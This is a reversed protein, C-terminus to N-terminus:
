YQDACRRDSLLIFGSGRSERIGPQTGVPAVYSLAGVVDIVGEIIRFGAAGIALGENYEKLIPYLALGIGACAIGMIFKVATFIIM